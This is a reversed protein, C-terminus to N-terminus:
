SALDREKALASTQVSSHRLARSLADRADERNGADLHRLAYVILAATMRSHSLVDSIKEPRM